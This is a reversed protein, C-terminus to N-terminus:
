EHNPGDLYPRLGQLGRVEAAGVIFESAITDPGYNEVLWDRADEDSEFRECSDCREVWEHTTDSSIATPWRVGPFIEHECGECYVGSGPERDESERVVIRWDGSSENDLRDGLERAEILSEASLTIDLRYFDM